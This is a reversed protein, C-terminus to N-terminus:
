SPIVHSLTTTNKNKNQKNTLVPWYSEGRLVEPFSSKLHLMVTGRLLLLIMYPFYLYLMINMEGKDRPTELFM